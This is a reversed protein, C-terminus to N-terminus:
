RPYFGFRPKAMFDLPIGLHSIGRAMDPSVGVTENMRCHIMCDKTQHELDGYQKHIRMMPHEMLKPQDLAEMEDKIILEMGYPTIFMKPEIGAWKFWKRYRNAKIAAQNYEQCRHAVYAERDCQRRDYIQGLVQECVQTLRGSTVYVPEEVM